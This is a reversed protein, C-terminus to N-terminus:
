QELEFDDNLDHKYYASFKSEMENFLKESVKGSDLLIKKIEEYNGNRMSYGIISIIMKNDIKDIFNIFEPFRYLYKSLLNSIDKKDEDNLKNIAGNLYKASFGHHIIKQIYNSVISYYFQKGVINLFYEITAYETIELAISIYELNDEFLKPNIYPILVAIRKKIENKDLGYKTKLLRNLTRESTNYIAESSAETYIKAPIYKYAIDNIIQPYVSFKSKLSDITKGLRSTNFLKQIVQDLPRKKSSLNILISPNNEIKPLLANITEDSLQKKDKDIVFQPFNYIPKNNNGIILNKLYIDKNMGNIEKKDLATTMWNVVKWLQKYFDIIIKKDESDLFDRPGRWELTKNDHVNLISYKDTNLLKIIENFDFRHIADKLDSLYERNSWTTIFNYNVNDGNSSITNFESFLKKAKDDLSLQSVIWAADEGTIGQYSLHHHFGCSDNTKFYGLSLGKNLMNIVKQVNEVNFTLVPSAYEFTSQFDIDDINDTQFNEFLERLSMEEGDYYYYSAGDEDEYYQVCGPFVEISSDWHFDGGNGFYSEIFKIVDNSSSSMNDTDFNLRGDAVAELEFGFTFDTTLKKELLLTENIM